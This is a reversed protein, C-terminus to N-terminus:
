HFLVESFSPFYRYIETYRAVDDEPIGSRVIKTTLMHIFFAKTPSAKIRKPDNIADPM